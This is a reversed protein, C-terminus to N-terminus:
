MQLAGILTGILIRDMRRGSVGGERSFLVLILVGLITDQGLLVGFSWTAGSTIGVGCINWSGAAVRAQFRRAVLEGDGRTRGQLALWDRAFIMEEPQLGAM